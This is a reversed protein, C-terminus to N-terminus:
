GCCPDIVGGLFVGLEVGALVVAGSVAHDGGLAARLFGDVFSVLLFDGDLVAGELDDEVPLDDEVGLQAHSVKLLEHAL